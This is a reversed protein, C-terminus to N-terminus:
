VFIIHFHKIVSISLKVHLSVIETKGSLKISFLRSFVYNKRKVPFEILGLLVLGTATFTIISEIERLIEKDYLLTHQSM